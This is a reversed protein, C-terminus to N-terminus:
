MSNDETDKTEVLGGRECVEMGAGELREPSPRCVEGGWRTEKGNVKSCIAPGQERQTLKVSLCRDDVSGDERNTERGRAGRKERKERTRNSLQPLLPSDKAASSLGSGGSFHPEHFVKDEIDFGRHQILIGGTVSEDQSHLAAGARSPRQLSVCSVSKSDSQMRKCFTGNVKCCSIRTSDIEKTKAPISCPPDTDRQVGYVPLMFLTAPHLPFSRPDM